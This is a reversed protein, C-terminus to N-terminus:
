SRGANRPSTGTSSPPDTVAVARLAHEGELGSLLELAASLHDSVDSVAGALEDLGEIEFRLEVRAVEREEDTM